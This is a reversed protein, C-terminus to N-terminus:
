KQQPLKGKSGCTEALCRYYPMGRLEIVSIDTSGCKPCPTENSQQVEPALEDRELEEYALDERFEAFDSEIRSNRKRLQANERRLKINEKRLERMRRTELRQEPTKAM